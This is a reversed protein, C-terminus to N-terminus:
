GMISPDFYFKERTIKGNEVTYLAMESMKFRNGSEKHTLDYTLHLAFEDGNPYPGDVESGHVEFMDKFWQSKQRCAEVGTTTSEEGGGSEISVIDPHYLEDHAPAPNMSKIIEVLRNSVEQSNM